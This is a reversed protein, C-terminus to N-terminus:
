KWRKQVQVSKTKMPKCEKVAVKNMKVISEIPKKQYAPKSKDKPIKSLTISKKPALIFKQLNQTVKAKELVVISREKVATELSGGQVKLNHSFATNKGIEDSTKSFLEVLHLTNLKPPEDAELDNQLKISRMPSAENKISVEEAQEDKMVKHPQIEFNSLVIKSEWFRQMKSVAIIPAEDPKNPITEEMNSNKVNEEFTM